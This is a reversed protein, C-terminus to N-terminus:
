RSLPQRALPKDHLECVDLRDVVPPLVDSSAAGSEVIHVADTAGIGM